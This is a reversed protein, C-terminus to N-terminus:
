ASKAQTKTPQAFEGSKIAQNLLSKQTFPVENMEVSNVISLQVKKGAFDKSFIKSIYM